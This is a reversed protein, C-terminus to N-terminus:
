QQNLVKIAVYSIDYIDIVDDKNIDLISRYNGVGKTTGFASAVAVIDGISYGNGTNDADAIVATLVTNTTTTYELTSMDSLVAGKAIEFSSLADKDKAKLKIYIVDIDGTTIGQQQGILSGIIRVKGNVDKVDLLAKGDYGVFKGDAHIEKLEFRSNDYNFTLDFGYLNKAGKVNLKVTTEQNVDLIFKNNVVNDTSLTLQVADMYAQNVTIVVSNSQVIKGYLTVIATVDVTGPKYATLKGQSDIDAISPNSSIYQIKASSLDAAVGSSLKAVLSFKTTKTRDISTQEANIVVSSLNDVTFNIKYSKTSGDGLTVNITATGPLALAQTVDAKESDSIMGEVKPVTTTGIPLVVNYEMTNPNFDSVAKGDITITSLTAKVLVNIVNNLTAIMSNVSAQDEYAANQANVLATQLASWSAATYDAANLANADSIAKNLATKDPEVVRRIIMQSMRSTGSFSINMQGDTIKINEVKGTTAQNATNSTSYVTSGSEVSVKVTSGSYYASTYYLEYTGNPLDVIFQAGSGAVVYDNDPAALSSNDNRGQVATSLTTKGPDAFGYGLTSSYAGLSVNTGGKPNLTVGTYGAAVQTANTGFDFKYVAPYVINLTTNVTGSFGEISGNVTVSTNAKGTNVISTNWTIPVAIVAGSKYTATVTGPLPIANIETNINVEIPSVAAVSVIYDDLVQVNLTVKFNNYAEVTGTMTYQGITALNVSSTDWIVPSNVTTGNLFSLTVTAPTTLATNKVVRITYDAYDTFYYGNIANEIVKVTVPVAQAWGAITATVTYSGPTNINVATTDWTVNAKVTNGLANVVDVQAPLLAAIGNPIPTSQVLDSLTITPVSVIDVLTTTTVAKSNFSSKGDVIAAVKYSYTTSSTVTSDKYFFNNQADIGSHDTSNNSKISGDLNLTDLLAYNGDNGARYIYYGQVTHGYIGDSAPTWKISVNNKTTETTSVQATILGQTLDYGLDTPQNYGTNQWGVSLRYVSDQMLTPISYETPINTTYIRIKSNDASTRLVMDERWDGMIDAILGPNGKTGNSTFVESSEFIKIEKGNEYDWKTIHSSVPVYQAENFTHDFMESLFDGDWYISFNVSPTNQSLKISNTLTSQSSYVGGDKGNWAPNAWIEESAATPDIDGSLGRGCDVGKLPSGWLVEGTNADHIEYAYPIDKHEHVSFVYYSGDPQPILHEADGHGLGTSWKLKGDNDIAISGYIIEDKGDKDVDAVMLNHNGQSRVQSAPYSGIDTPDESSFQWQETLKGNVLTYAAVYAKTYYGRAFVFSPHIGDLYATGALFRDVRNGWDDGWSAVDGRPPDYNVTDMINGTQGNFVTLYEPGTLIYGSANRYDNSASIVNTPLAESSCAGVHGTETFQGTANNYSYTTTGDATKFAVEAKGDGNIDAVQFQTYHAGSRINVGLDIRWMLSINGNRDYDYADLFTKGTYGSKSNDQANSPYWKVILEYDGDGNLDGVSMDNATYTCTTGDPMIEDAPKVLQFEKYQNGWAKVKDPKSSDSGIGSSAIVYYEDGAKGATDTWNTAKLGEKVKTGNRYVDFSITSPDEKFLRWSLYVGSTAGALANNDATIATAVLARDTLTEMPLRTGSVVDRVLSNIANNLVSALSDVTAQSADAPCNQANTLATQLLSWSAATYDTQKLALAKTIAANLATKDQASPMDITITNSPATETGDALVGVVYYQYTNGLNESYSHLGNIEAKDFSNFVSYATDLKGKRYIRYSLADDTGNFRLSFYGLTKSKTLDVEYANLGTPALALPTIELGNFYAHGGIDLTLQGDLIRVTFVGSGVGNRPSAVTGIAKGEAALDTKIGSGTPDGAYAKISYDGNPLDVVFTGAGLTFDCMMADITDSTGRTRGNKPATTFGYGAQTTYLQNDKVQLWGSLTPGAAYSTASTFDYKYQSSKTTATIPESQTSQGKENYAAVKYAYTVGAQCTSDNYQGTVSTGIQTYTGDAATQGNSLVARYIYYLDAGAVSDWKFRVNASGITLATLNIPATPVKDPVPIDPVLSALSTLLSNQKILRALLQSMKIAGYEQYHTADSIGNIFNPYVGPDLQLFISKSQAEGFSTLFDAGAKGLDLVPINQTTAMDLMVQRYEGFSINAVGSSFSYRPVPTVLVPTAGRQKAGDIYKQIYTHFDASSVYRNPRSSTADNHGWQVFFYDGPKITNLINDLKGEDIFSKSSRGGMARNEIISSSLEYKRSQSYGATTASEIMSDAGAFYKYLTQGWGAQPYNGADYTQVTSDSAIYITPKSGATRAERKAISVSKVYANQDKADALTTAASVAEFKLNLKGDTLSILYNSVTSTSQAPVTVTSKTLDEAILNVKIEQDTPNVLDVKVDYDASVLDVNFVSTNDYTYVGKSAADTGLPAGTETWVKSGITLYDAVNTVSAAGPAEVKVRPKYINSVWGAADNPYSIDTFGFGKSADYISTNTVNGTTGFSYTVTNEAAKVDFSPPVIGSMLSAFM